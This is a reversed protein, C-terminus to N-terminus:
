GRGERLCEACFYKILADAFDNSGHGNDCVYKYEM